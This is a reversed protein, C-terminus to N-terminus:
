KVIDKFTENEFYKIFEVDNKAFEKLKSDKTVATRLNNFLVEDNAQRAGTIAKLYFSM